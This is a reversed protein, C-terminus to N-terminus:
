RWFGTRRQPSLASTLLMQGGTSHQTSCLHTPASSPYSDGAACWSKVPRESQGILTRLASVSIAGFTPALERAVTLLGQDSARIMLQAGAAGINAGLHIWAFARRALDPDSDFYRKIGLFGLEHGTTALFVLDRDLGLQDATRAVELWIALGGGREGACHWWGSRPTLV